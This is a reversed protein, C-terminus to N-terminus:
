VEGFWFWVALELDTKMAGGGLFFFVKHKPALLSGQKYDCISTVLQEVPM